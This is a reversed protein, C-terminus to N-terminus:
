KAEKAETAVTRRCRACLEKRVSLLKDQLDREYQQLEFEDMLPLSRKMLKEHVWHGHKITLTEILPMAHTYVAQQVQDVAPEIFGHYLVHPVKANPVLILGLLVCKFLYYLPIWSVLFEMYEEFITLAGLVLWFELIPTLTAMELGKESRSLVKLSEYAGSFMSLCTLGESILYFSM